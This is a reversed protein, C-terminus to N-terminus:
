FSYRIGAELQGNDGEYFNYGLGLFLDEYVKYYGKAKFAFEDNGDVNVYTLRTDLELDSTALHRLGLAVNFGDENINLENSDYNEYTLTTYVSTLNSYSHQYGLGLSITEMEIDIRRIDDSTHSFGAVVFVNDNILKTGRWSIGKPKFSGAGEIDNQVYDIELNNWEIKSGEHNDAFINQTLLLTAISALITKKM